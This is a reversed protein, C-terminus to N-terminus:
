RTNSNGPAAFAYVGSDALRYGVYVVGGSVLYPKGPGSFYGGIQVSWIPDGTRADFTHLYDSHAYLVGDVEKVEGLNWDDDLSWIEDGTASDLAHFAEIGTVFVMGNAVGSVFLAYDEEFTWLTQGTAADLARLAGNAVLPWVGDSIFPPRDPLGGYDVETIWLQEGTSEDLAYAAAYSRLYVM